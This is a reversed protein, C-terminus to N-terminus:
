LQIERISGINPMPRTRAGAIDLNGQLNGGSLLQANVNLQGQPSLFEPLLRQFASMRANNVRLRASAKRWDLPKKSKIIDWFSKELPLEGSLTVPQGEVRFNCENVKALQPSIGIDLKLEELKPLIQNTWPLQLEQVEAQVKGNPEQWTGALNVN